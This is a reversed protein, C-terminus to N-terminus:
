AAETDAQNKVAREFIKRAKKPTAGYVTVSESKENGLGDEFRVYVRPHNTKPKEFTIDMIETYVTNM